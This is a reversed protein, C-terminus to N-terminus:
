RYSAKVRGWTSGLAAVPLNYNQCSVVSAGVPLDSFRLTATASASGGDTLGMAGLVCALPFPTGAASQVLDLIESFVPGSQQTDLQFPGTMDTAFGAWIRAQGTITGQVSLHAWFTVPTGQPIGVVTFNDRMWPDSGCGGNSPGWSGSTALAGHPIDYCGDPCPTGAQWPGFLSAAPLPSESPLWDQDTCGTGIYSVPCQAIAPGALGLVAIASAAEILWKWVPKM